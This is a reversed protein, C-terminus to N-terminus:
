QIRVSDAKDKEVTKGVLLINILKDDNLDTPSVPDGWYVDSEEVKELNDVNTDTEFTEQEPPVVSETGTERDIKGLYHNVTGFLALAIILLVSVIGIMIKLWKKRKM